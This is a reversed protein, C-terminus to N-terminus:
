KGNALLNVVISDPRKGEINNKDEWHKVGSIDTSQINNMSMKVTLSQGDKVVFKNPTKDLVYGNPAKEEIFSYEGPQLLGSEVIGNEDSIINDVVINNKSDIIKFVAGALAKKTFSDTKVLEASNLLETTADNSYINTGAYDMYANNIIEDGGKASSNNYMVDFKIKEVQGKPIDKIVTYSLLNTKKDLTENSIYEANKSITKQFSVVDSLPDYIKTGAKIIDANSKLSLTYELVGSTTGLTKQAVTKNLSVAQYASDDLAIATDYNKLKDSNSYLDVHNYRIGFEEPTENSTVKEAYMVVYSDNSTIDGFDVEFGDNTIKIKNEFKDTVYQWTNPIGDEDRGTVKAVRFHQYIKDDGTAPIYHNPDTLQTGNPTKDVIKANKINQQNYNVVIAFINSGPNSLSMLSARTGNIDKTPRTSWKSLLPNGSETKVIDSNSSDTSLIDTNNSLNVGFDVNDPINTDDEYFLPAQFLIKITAGFTSDQDIKTHDYKINLVYNGNSDMTVAPNDLYFPDGMVIGNVLDSPNKVISQPITVSIEGDENLKGASASLTVDLEVQDKGVIKKPSTITVGPDDGASASIEKIGFLGSWSSLCIIVIMLFYKIKDNM